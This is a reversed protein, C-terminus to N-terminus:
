RACRPIHSACDHGCRGIGSYSMNFQHPFM